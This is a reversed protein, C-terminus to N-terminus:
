GNKKTQFNIIYKKKRLINDTILIKKLLKNKQLSSDDVIVIKIKPSFLFVKKALISINKAENFSPIVVGVNQNM